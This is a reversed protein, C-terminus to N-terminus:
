TEKKNKRQKNNNNLSEDNILSIYAVFSPSPLPCLAPLSISLLWGWLSEVQLGLSPCVLSVAIQMINQFKPNSMKIISILHKRCIFTILPYKIMKSHNSFNLWPTPLLLDYLSSWGSPPEARGTILQTVSFWGSSSEPGWNWSNYFFPSSLSGELMTVPHSLFSLFTVQVAKGNIDAGMSGATFIGNAVTVTSTEFLHIYSSPIKLERSAVQWFCFFSMIWKM